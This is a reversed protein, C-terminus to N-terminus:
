SIDLDVHKPELHFSDMANSSCFLGGQWQFDRLSRCVLLGVECVQRELRHLGDQGTATSPLWPEFNAVTDTTIKSACFMMYKLCHCSM